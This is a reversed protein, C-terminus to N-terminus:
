TDSHNKWKGSKLRWICLATRLMCDVAIALWVGVVGMQLPRTALWVLGIRLGWMGIVSVLLSFRVDGAGRFIGCVIVFFSFFIETAAAIALTKTGLEIVQPDNSFLSIIPGSWITVPICALLIIASGILCIHFAFKDALDKRKAGLSQGVLATATFAFGNAPLYLLGETQNTLYHAALPITGLSSIMGTLAIQGSTLTLRELLVPFSIRWMQRFTSREVQYRNELLRIRVPTDKTVLFVLLISALLFYSVATSLAAGATGLGAGWMFFSHGGITLQRAPYILLFNGIINVGNSTLNAALPIRTNGASRFVASLVVAVAQPVLGFGIIKMYAQAHPLVDPAAGLIRPLPRCILQVALTLFAGLCFACTISQYTIRRTKAGEGEGVAHSILFSFGASLATIFGNILWVTSINVAVAATAVAGISGVMATDLLTAMCVLFQELIAPWALALVTKPINSELDKPFGMDTSM